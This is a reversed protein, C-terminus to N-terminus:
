LTLGLMEPNDKFSSSYGSSMMCAANALLFENKCHNVKRLKAKGRSQFKEFDLKTQLKMIELWYGEVLLDM